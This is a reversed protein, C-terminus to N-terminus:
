VEVLEGNKYTREYKLQGSEYWGKWIGDPEGNKYPEESGLQGSEYWWRWPGDLEGNKYTREYKLQGTEYWGKWIGDGNKYNEKSELQGSEYWWRWPGDLKRNKCTRESELQGNEYWTRWAGDPNENKRQIYWSRATEETKFYHIGPACVENIDDDFTTQVIEGIRYIFSSNYLSTDETILEKTFPNVMSIVLAKNTRFKARLPDVVSERSENTISDPLLQLTVISNQCAKYVNMITRTINFSNKSDNKGSIIIENKM